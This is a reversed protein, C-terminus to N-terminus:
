IRQLAECGLVTALELLDGVMLDFDGEAPPQEVVVGAGYELPRCDAARGILYQLLATKGVGAEGCLVLARSDGASVAEVLRDLMGREARRDILKM